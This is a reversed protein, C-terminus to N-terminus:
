VTSNQLKKFNLINPSQQLIQSRALFHGLVMWLELM